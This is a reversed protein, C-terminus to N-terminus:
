SRWLTDLIKIDASPDGQPIDLTISGKSIVPKDFYEETRIMGASLVKQGPMQAAMDSHNIHEPFVMPIGFSGDDFIIYKM